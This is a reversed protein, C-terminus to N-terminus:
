RIHLSQLQSFYLYGRDMESRLAPGKGVECSWREACSRREACWRELDLGIGM